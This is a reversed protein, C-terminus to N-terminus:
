QLNCGNKQFYDEPIVSYFIDNTLGTKEQNRRGGKGEKKREKRGEKREGERKGKRGNM